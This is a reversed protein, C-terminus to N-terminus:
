ESQQSFDKLHKIQAELNNIVPQLKGQFTGGSAMIHGGGNWYTRAFKNTDITNKKSRFSLRVIKERETVLCGFNIDKLNLCYNVLGETDGPQFDYQRLEEKSLCIYAAGYQPFVKLKESIAYGLLRLRNESFTSYIEQHVEDVCVGKSVLYAVLSYTEANNCNYSFSGTDTCLGIYIADAITKDIADPSIAILLHALVESASCADPFSFMTECALDPEQHHDIYIKAACSEALADKIHNGVRHVMNFDIGFIIDSEMLRVRAKKTEKSAYIMDVDKVFSDIFSPFPNPMVVQVDKNQRKLFHYLAVSSGVGDADPNFHTVISITKAADILTKTRNIDLKNLEM